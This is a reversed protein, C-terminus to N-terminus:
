ENSIVHGINHLLIMAIKEMDCYKEAFDRGKEGMENIMKKNKLLDIISKYFSEISNEAIVGGNSVKSLYEIEGKEAAIFPIGCSM